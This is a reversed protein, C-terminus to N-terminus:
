KRNYFEKFTQQAAPVDRTTTITLVKGDPSLSWVEKIQLTSNGPMGGYPQTTAIVLADGQLSATIAAKAMGTDTARTYTKGDLTVERLAKQPDTVRLSSADQQITILIEAGTPGRVGGADVGRTLWYMSNPVADSKANDRVWSGSFDPAAMALAPLFAIGLMMLLQRKM